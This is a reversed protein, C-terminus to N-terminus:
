SSIQQGTGTVDPNPCPGYPCGDDEPPNLCYASIFRERAGTENTNSNFVITTVEAALTTFTSSSM